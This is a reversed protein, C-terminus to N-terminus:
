RWTIILSDRIADLVVHVPVAVSLTVYGRNKAEVFRYPGHPEGPAREDDEVAHKWWESRHELWARQLERTPLLYCRRLLAFAYAIYDCALPKAVWGLQNRRDGPGYWKKRENGTGYWKSFVELALDDGKAKPRVKEDVSVRTGNPLNLLRDIGARQWWGDGRMDQMVCGPFAQEYVDAWWPQDAYAHSMALSTAFDHTTM